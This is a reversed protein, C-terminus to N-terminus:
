HTKASHPTAVSSTRARKPDPETLDVVVTGDDPRKRKTSSSSAPPPPPPPDVPTYFDLFLTRIFGSDMFKLFFNERAISSTISSSSRKNYIDHLGLAKWSPDDELHTSIVEQETVRDESSTAPNLMKKHLLNLLLRCLRRVHPDQPTKHYHEELSAYEKVLPLTEVWQHLQRSPRNWQNDLSDNLFLIWHTRVKTRKEDTLFHTEYLEWLSQIMDLHTITTGTYEWTSHRALDEVLRFFRYPPAFFTKKLKWALAQQEPETFREAITKPFSSWSGTPSTALDSASPIHPPLGLISTVLSLGLGGVLFPHFKWSEIAHVFESMAHPSDRYGTVSTSDPEDSTCRQWFLELLFKAYPVWAVAFKPGRLESGCHRNISRGCRSLLTSHRRISSERPSKGEDIDFIVVRKAMPSLDDSTLSEMTASHDAPTNRICLANIYEHIFAGTASALLQDISAWSTTRDVLWQMDHESNMLSPFLMKATTVIYHALTNWRQDMVRHYGASDPRGYITQCLLDLWKFRMWCDDHLGARHLKRISKVHSFQKDFLALVQMSKFKHFKNRHFVKLASLIKCWTSADQTVLADTLYHEPNVLKTPGTESVVMFDHKSPHAATRQFADSAGQLAKCCMGLSLATPFDLGPFLEATLMDMPLDLFTAPTTPPRLLTTTAMRDTHTPSSEHHERQTLDLIVGGTVRLGSLATEGPIRPPM